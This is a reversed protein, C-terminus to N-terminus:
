GNREDHIFIHLTNLLVPTPDIADPYMDKLITNPDPIIGLAIQAAVENSPMEVCPKFIFRSVIMYVYSTPSDGTRIVTVYKDCVYRLIM